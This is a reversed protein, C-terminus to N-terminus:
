VHTSEVCSHIRGVCANWAHLTRVSANNGQSSLELMEDFDTRQTLLRALGWFTGGGVSSGSVREYAGDGTVQM